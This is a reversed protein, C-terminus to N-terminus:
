PHWRSFLVDKIKKEQIGFLGIPTKQAYPPKKRGTTCPNMSRTIWATDARELTAINQNSEDVFIAKNLYITDGWPKLYRKPVHYTGDFSIGKVQVMELTDATEIHVLWGDRGYRVPQVTDGLLFLPVSQYREVGLTDSVRSYENRVFNYVLPSEKNQNKYNSLVGWTAKNCQINELYALREKIKHWQFKRITDKYPYEDELTYSVFQLDKIISIDEATLDKIVIEEEIDLSDISDQIIAETEVIPKIEKKCSCVLILLIIALKHIKM